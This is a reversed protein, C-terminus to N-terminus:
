MMSPRNVGRSLGLLAGFVILSVGIIFLMFVVALEMVSQQLEDLLSIPYGPYVTIRPAVDAMLSHVVSISALLSVGVAILAISCAIQLRPPTQQISFVASPGSARENNWLPSRPTLNSKASAEFKVTAWNPAPSSTTHLYYIVDTGIGRQKFIPGALAVNGSIVKASFSEAYTNSGAIMMTRMAISSGSTLRVSHLDVFASSRKLLRLLAQGEVPSQSRFFSLARRRSGDILEPDAFIQALVVDKFARSERTLYTAVSYWPSDCTHTLVVERGSWKTELAYVLRGNVEHDTSSSKFLTQTSQPLYDRCSKTLSNNFEEVVAKSTDLTNGLQVFRGLTLSITWAGGQKRPKESVVAFRIPVFTFPKKCSSILQVDSSSLESSATNIFPVPNSPQGGPLSEATTPLESEIEIVPDYYVILVETGAVIADMNVNPHLWKEEYSFTISLGSPYSCCNLLDLWHYNKAGNTILILM